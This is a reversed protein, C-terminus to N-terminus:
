NTLDELATLSKMVQLREEKTLALHKEDDDKCYSNRGRKMEYQNSRAVQMTDTIAKMRYRVKRSLTRAIDTKKVPSRSPM